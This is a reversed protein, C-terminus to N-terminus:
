GPLQPRALSDRLRYEALWDTNSIQTRPIQRRCVKLLAESHGILRICRSMKFSRQQPHMGLVAGSVTQGAQVKDFTSMNVRRVMFM